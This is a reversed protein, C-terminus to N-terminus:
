KNHPSVEWTSSIKQLTVKRNQHMVDNTKMYHVNPGDKENIYALKIM